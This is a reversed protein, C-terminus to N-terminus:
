SELWKRDEASLQKQKPALFRVVVYGVLVLPLVQFRATVALALGLAGMWAHRGRIDAAPRTWYLWNCAPRRM